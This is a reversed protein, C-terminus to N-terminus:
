GTYVADLCPLDMDAGLKGLGAFLVKVQFMALQRYVEQM